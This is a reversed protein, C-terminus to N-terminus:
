KHFNPARFRAYGEEKGNVVSDIVSINDDYNDAMKSTYIIQREKNVGIFVNNFLFSYQLLFQQERDELVDFHDFIINIEAVGQNGFIIKIINELSDCLDTAKRYRKREIYDLKNMRNLILHLLDKRKKEQPTGQLNIRNFIVIKYLELGIMLDILQVIKQSSYDKFALLRRCDLYIEEERGIPSSGQEQDLTFNELKPNQVAM